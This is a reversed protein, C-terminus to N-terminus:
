YKLDMVRQKFKENKKPYSELVKTWKRPNIYKELIIKQERNMEQQVYNHFRTSNLLFWPSFKKAQVLRLMTSAEMFGFIEHPQCEYIKSLEMITDITEDVQEEPTLINDLNTIYHEYVMTNTWDKPPIDLDIMYSIFKLKAPLAMRTSFKAFEIFPKFLKSDIFQDVDYSKSGKLSLWRRYYEYAKLGIPKRMLKHKVMDQCMHKNFSGERVFKKLCYKCEFYNM